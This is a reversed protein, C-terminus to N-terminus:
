HKDAATHQEYEYGYRAWGQSLSFNTTNLPTGNELSLTDNNALRKM